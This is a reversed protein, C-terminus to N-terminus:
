VLNANYYKLNSSVHQSNISDMIAQLGCVELDTLEGMEPHKERFEKITQQTEASKINFKVKEKKSKPAEKEPSSLRDTPALLDSDQPSTMGGVTAAAALSNIKSLLQENEKSKRNIRKRSTIVPSDALFYIFIFLINTGSRDLNSDPLAPKLFIDVADHLITRTPSVKNEASLGPKLGSAREHIATRPRGRKRPL